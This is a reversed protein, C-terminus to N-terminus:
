LTGGTGLSGAFTSRRKKVFTLPSTFGEGTHGALSMAVWGEGGVGEAAAASGNAVFVTCHYANRVATIRNIDRSHIVVTHGRGGECRFAAATAEAFDRVRSIPMVPMLQEELVLPHDAPVELMVIPTSESVHVGIQQLIWSANKGVADKNPHGDVILYEVLRAAEAGQALYAGNARMKEILADAKENVVFTAKEGICLVNNDFGTGEVISRAANDLDATEDVIVPPNGPGACVAKKGVALAAKVVGPGGTANILRVAKHRMIANASELTPEAVATFLNRPGGAKVVADNMLAMTTMTSVKASPHPCFVASNGGVAFIIANNILGSTPNTVPTIGCIVGFAFYDEITLGNDGYATQLQLIEFGPTKDSCLLNKIEKHAVRGLGTEDVTMQALQLANDRGAQRMAEVCAKRTELPLAIWQKQAVAAAEVAEDPTAFIGHMGALSNQLASAHAPKETAVQMGIENLVDRVISEIDNESIPM